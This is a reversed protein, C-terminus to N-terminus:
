FFFLLFAFTLFFNFSTNINVLRYFALICSLEHNSFFLLIHTKLLFTYLISNCEILSFPFVDSCVYPQKRFPCISHHICSTYFLITALPLSNQAHYLNRLVSLQRQFRKSNSQSLSYSTECHIYAPVLRSNSKRKRNLFFFTKKSYPKQYCVIYIEKDKPSEYKSKFDKTVKIFHINNWLLRHLSHCVYVFSM